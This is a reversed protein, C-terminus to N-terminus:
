KAGALYVRYVLFPTGHKQKAYSRSKGNERTNARRSAFLFLLIYLNALSFAKAFGFNNRQLWFM